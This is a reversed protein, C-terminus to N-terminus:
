SKDFVNVYNYYDISLKNLMKQSTLIKINNIQSNKFIYFKYCKKYKIKFNCLYSDNISIRNDRKMSSLIEFSKIFIDYIKNMTLSFLKNEKSRILYYYISIDIEVINLLNSKQIMKEKFIKFISTSKKRTDKSFNVDSSEENSNEIISKLSTIIISSTISLFSLNESASVKNDNYKYRKSVFLIKNKRINLIVKYKNM